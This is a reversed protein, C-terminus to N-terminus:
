YILKGGLGVWWRSGAWWGEQWDCFMAVRHAASPAKWESNYLNERHTQSTWADPKRNAHSNVSWFAMQFGYAKKLVLYPPSTTRIVTKHRHKVCREVHFYRRWIAHFHVMQFSSNCFGGREAGEAGRREHRKHCNGRIDESGLFV